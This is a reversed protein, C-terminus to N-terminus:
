TIGEALRKGYGVQCSSLESRGVQCNILDELSIEEEDDGLNRRAEPECICILEIDSLSEVYRLWIKLLSQQRKALLEKVLWKVKKKMPWEYVWSAEANQQMILALNEM